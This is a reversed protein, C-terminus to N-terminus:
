KELLIGVGVGMARRWSCKVSTVLDGTEIKHCRHKVAMAVKVPRRSIVDVALM